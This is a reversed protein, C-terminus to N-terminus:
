SRVMHGCVTDPWGDLTTPEISCLGETLTVVSVCDPCRGADRIVGVLLDVQETSLSQDVCIRTGDSAHHECHGARVKIM